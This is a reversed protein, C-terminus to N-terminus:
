KKIFKVVESNIRVFYIGSKYNAVNISLVNGDAIMNSILM